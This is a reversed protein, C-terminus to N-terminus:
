PQAPAHCPPVSEDGAPHATPAGIRGTLSLLGLGLLAVATLRPAFPGLKDAVRRSFGGVLVLTPLGGLWFACMVAAGDWGSGTAAAVLVYTWLWGCPLLGTLLGAAAGASTGGNRLREVLVRRARSLRSPPTTAARVQVLPAVSRTNTRMWMAAAALILSIGMLVGLFRPAALQTAVSDVQAGALGAVTGLSAYTLLRAGHYAAIGRRGGVAGVTAVFGGCMGACHLSGLLSAILVAALSM